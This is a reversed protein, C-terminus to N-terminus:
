SELRVASATAVSFFRKLMLNKIGFYLRGKKLTESLM